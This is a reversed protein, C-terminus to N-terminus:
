FLVVGLYDILKNLDEKDIRRGEKIKRINVISVGTKEALEKDSINKYRRKLEILEGVYKYDM